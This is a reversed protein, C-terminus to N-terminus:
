VRVRREPIVERDFHAPEERFSVDQLLQSSRPVATMVHQEDAVPCGANSTVKSKDSMVREKKAISCQFSISRRSRFPM